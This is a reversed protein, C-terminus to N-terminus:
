ASVIFIVQPASLQNHEPKQSQSNWCIRTPHNGRGGRSSDYRFHSPTWYQPVKSDAKNHKSQRRPPRSSIMVFIMLPRGPQNNPPFFRPSVGLPFQRLIHKRTRPKLVKFFQRPANPRGPAGAGIECSLFLSAPNPPYSSHHQGKICVVSVVTKAWGCVRAPLPRPGGLLHPRPQSVWGGLSAQSCKHPM